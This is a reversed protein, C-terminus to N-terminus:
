LIDTFTQIRTRIQEFDGSQQNIEITTSPYGADKLDKEIYPLDYEEPDCFKMLCNM